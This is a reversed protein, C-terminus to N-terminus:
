SNDCLTKDRRFLELLIFIGKSSQFSQGGHKLEVLATYKNDNLSCAIKM